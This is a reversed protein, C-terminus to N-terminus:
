DDDGDLVRRSARALRRQHRSRALAVALERDSHLCAACLRFGETEAVPGAGLARDCADCSEVAPPPDGRRLGDRM